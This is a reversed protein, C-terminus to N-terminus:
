KSFYFLLKTGVRKRYEVYDNGFFKVLWKEEDTYRNTRLFLSPKIAVYWRYSGFLIQQPCDCFWPNVCHKGSSTSYGCGLLLFWCLFPTAVM